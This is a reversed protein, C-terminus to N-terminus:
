SPQPGYRNPGRTGPLFGTAVFFWLSPFAGALHALATVAPVSPTASFPMATLASTIFFPVLFVLTYWGSLGRDHLRKVNFALNPWFFVAATIWGSADVIIRRLSPWTSDFWLAGLTGDLWPADDALLRSLGFNFATEVGLLLLLAAWWTGRGIRGSFSGYLWALRGM